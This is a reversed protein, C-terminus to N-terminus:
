RTELESRGGREEERGKPFMYNQKLSYTNLLQRLSPLTETSASSMDIVSHVYYAGSGARRIIMTSASFTELYPLMEAVFEAAVIKDAFCFITSTKLSAM